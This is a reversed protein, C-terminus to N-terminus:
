FSIFYQVQRELDQLPTLSQIQICQPFLDKAFEELHIRLSGQIRPEAIETWAGNDIQDRTAKAREPDVGNTITPKFNWAELIRDKNKKGGESLPDEIMWLHDNKELAKFDFLQRMYPRIFSWRDSWFAGNEDPKNYYLVRTFPIPKRKPKGTLEWCVEHVTIAVDEEVGDSVYV